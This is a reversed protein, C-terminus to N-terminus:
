AGLMRMTISDQTDNQNSGCETGALTDSAMRVMNAIVLWSKATTPPDM